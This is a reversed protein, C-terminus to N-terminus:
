LAMRSKGVNNQITFKVLTYFQITDSFLGEPPTHQHYEVFSLNVIFNAYNCAVRM